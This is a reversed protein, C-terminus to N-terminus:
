EDVTDVVGVGVPPAPAASVAPEPLDLLTPAMTPPTTPPIRPTRMSPAATRKESRRRRRFACCGACACAPIGSRGMEVAVAVAVAM